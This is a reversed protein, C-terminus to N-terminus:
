FLSGILADLGGFGTSMGPEQPMPQKIPTPKQVEKLKNDVVERVAQETKAAGKNNKKPIIQLAALNKTPMTFSEGSKTYGFVIDQNADTFGSIRTGNEFKVPTKFTYQTPAIDKVTSTQKKFYSSPVRLTSLGIPM